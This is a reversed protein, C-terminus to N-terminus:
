MRWHSLAQFLESIRLGWFRANRQSFSVVGHLTEVQASTALSHFCLGRIQWNVASNASFYTDLYYLIDFNCVRCVYPININEKSFAQLIKIFMGGGYPLVSLGWRLQQQTHLCKWFQNTENIFNLALNGGDICVTNGFSFLYNQM